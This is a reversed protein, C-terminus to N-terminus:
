PRSQSEYEPSAPASDLSIWCCLNTRVLCTPSLSFCLTRFLLSCQSLAGEARSGLTNTLSSVPCFAPGPFVPDQAGKVWIRWLGGVVQLICGLINESVNVRGGCLGGWLGRM